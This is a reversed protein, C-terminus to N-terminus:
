AYTIHATKSLSDSSDAQVRWCEMDTLEVVILLRPQTRLSPRQRHVFFSGTVKM